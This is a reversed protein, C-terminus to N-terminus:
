SLAYPHQMLSLWAHCTLHSSQILTIDNTKWKAYFGCHQRELKYLVLSTFFINM